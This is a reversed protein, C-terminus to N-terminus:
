ADVSYTCSPKLIRSPPPIVNSIVPYSPVSVVDDDGIFDIALGDGRDPIVGEKTALGDGDWATDGQDAIKCEIM